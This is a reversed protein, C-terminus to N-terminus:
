NSDPKSHLTCVNIGPLNISVQPKIAALWLVISRLDCIKDSANLKPAGMAQITKNRQFGLEKCACPTVNKIDFAEINVISELFISSCYIVAALNHVALVREASMINVGSYSFQLIEMVTSLGTKAFGVVKAPNEQGSDNCFEQQKKLWFYEYKM